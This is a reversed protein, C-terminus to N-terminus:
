MHEILIGEKTLPERMDRREEKTWQEGLTTKFDYTIKARRGEETWLGEWIM